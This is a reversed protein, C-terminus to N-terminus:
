WTSCAAEPRRAPRRTPREGTTEVAPPHVHFQHGDVPQPGHQADGGRQVFGARRGVTEVPRRHLRDDGRDPGVTGRQQQGVGVTDHPELRPVAQGLPVPPRHLAVRGPRGVVGVGLRDEHGVDEGVRGHGFEPGDELGLTDSGQGENGEEVLPPDDALEHEVVVRGVGERLRLQRHGLDEGALHRHRDVPAPMVLRLPRRYRAEGPELPHRGLQGPRHRQDVGGGRDEARGPRLETGARRRDAQPRAVVELDDLGEAVGVVHHRVPPPEREGGVQRGAFRDARAPRDEQPRRGLPVATVRHEGRRRHGGVGGEGHNRQRVGFRETTQDEPEGLRPLEWGLVLREEAGQGPLAVGGEAPGPEVLVELQGPRHRCEQGLRRCRQPPREVGGLEDRGGGLQGGAPQGVAAGDREDLLPQLDLGALGVRGAVAGDQGDGQRDPAPRGARERQGVVARRREGGAGGVHGPLQGPPDGHGDVVGAAVAPLHTQGSRQLGAQQRRRQGIDGPDFQRGAVGGPAGADLHAAVQVVHDWEVAAPEDEDDAVDAAAADVGGSGSRQDAVGDPRRSEGIRRRGGDQAVEVVHQQPVVIGTTEFGPEAGGDHGEDRGGVTRRRGDCQRDAPM